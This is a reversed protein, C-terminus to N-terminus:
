AGVASPDSGSTAVMPPPAESLRVGNVLNTVRLASKDMDDKIRDAWGSLINGLMLAPIAVVLGLETTILAESIGGSLLKPNGTGFETIVDFTSIMGTVTGLLGLLPSVAALVMIAAGFRDLVPQEHLVAESIIDELQERPRDVHELTARLVRGSASNANRCIEIGRQINGQAVLPSIADVLKGTNAAARWLLLARLLIMLLAVIGGAVIVWAIIGGSTIHAVASQELKAEIPKDLDEFLFIHLLDPREGAALARATAASAPETWVKLEGSGAPALAGAASDSVGYAAVQGVRVVRGDIQSGDPAFFESTQERVAGFRQLLSLSQGFAFELQGLKRQPGDQAIKGGDDQAIKGGDDQAVKPLKIGGKELATAAQTLISDIVDEGEELGEVKRETEVLTDNLRDAELSASMVRGQLAEIESRAAGTKQAARKEIDAIRQQLANREAELFAFERRYARELDSGAKAAAQKAAQQQGAKQAAATWSPAFGAISLLALAGLRAKQVSSM